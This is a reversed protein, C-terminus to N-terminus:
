HSCFVTHFGSQQDRDVHAAHVLHAADKLNTKDESSMGIYFHGVAAFAFSHLPCVFGRARAAKVPFMVMIRMNASWPARTSVGVSFPLVGSM